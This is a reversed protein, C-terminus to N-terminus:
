LLDQLLLAGSITVLRSLVGSRNKSIFSKTSMASSLRGILMFSYLIREQSVHKALGFTKECIGPKMARCALRDERISHQLEHTTLKICSM